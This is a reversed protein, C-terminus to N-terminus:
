GGSPSVALGAGFGVIVLGAVADVGRQVRPRALWARMAGVALILLAFWALSQLVHVLALLGGMLAPNAGAPLFQPVLAVYFAGVKPNMLNTLFGQRFHGWGSRSAPAPAAPATDKRRPRIASRLMGIGLWVMYLAGAFKVVTYATESALLLASIGVAAAIGWVLVGAGIGLATGIAFRRGERVATRLVLATDIGPTITMLLAVLAFSAIATWLEM